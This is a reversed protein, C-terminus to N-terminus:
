AGEEQLAVDLYRPDNEKRDSAWLDDIVLNSVQVSLDPIMATLITVDSFNAIPHRPITQIVPM